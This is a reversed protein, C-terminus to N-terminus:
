QEKIHANNHTTNEQKLYKQRKFVLSLFDSYAKRFQDCRAVYLIINVSFQCEFLCEKLIYGISDYHGGTKSIEKLDYQAFKVVSCVLSTICIILINWTMRKEREARKKKEALKATPINSYFLFYLKVKM